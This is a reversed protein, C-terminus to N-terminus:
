ASGKSKGNESVTIYGICGYDFRKYIKRFLGIEATWLYFFQPLLITLLFIPNYGSYFFRIGTKKSIINWFKLWPKIFLTIASGVTDSVSELETINFGHKKLQYELGYRSYRYNDYKGDAICTVHPTTMFLIGGPKLLRRVESFFETPEAIDQLVETSLIVDVSADPLPVSTASCYIDIAKKPFPSDALDAGITKDFKSAYVDYFPRAGCGLDLLVGKGTYNEFWHRIYRYRITNEIVAGPNGLQM